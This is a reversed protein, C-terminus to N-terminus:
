RESEEESDDEDLDETDEFEEEGEGVGRINEQGGPNREETKDDMGSQPNGQQPQDMDRKPM